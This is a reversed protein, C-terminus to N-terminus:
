IFSHQAPRQGLPRGVTTAFRAAAVRDVDFIHAGVRRPRHMDPVRASRHEAIRKGIEQGEGAM